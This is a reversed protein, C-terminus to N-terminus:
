HIECARLANPLGTCDPLAQLFGLLDVLGECRQVQYAPRKHWHRESGDSQPTMRSYMSARPCTYRQVPSYMSARPCTYRQVPDEQSTCTMFCSHSFCVCTDYLSELSVRM